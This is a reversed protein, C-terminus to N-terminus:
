YRYPMWLKQKAEITKANRWFKPAASAIAIEAFGRVVQPNTRWTVSASESPDESFNLVIHDPHTGPKSWNEEFEPAVYARQQASVEDSASFFLALIIFIPLISNALM